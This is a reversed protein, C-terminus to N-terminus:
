NFEAVTQPKYIFRKQKNSGKKENQKKMAHKKQSKKGM